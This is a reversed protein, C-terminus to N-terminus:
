APRLTRVGIGLAGGVTGLILGPIFMLFPMSFVEALGGSAQIAAMTALDHRIAFLIAAGVLEVPAALAAAGVAAVVGAGFSRRRFSEVFAALFLIAVGIATSMSARDHLDAAPRLWDLATRALFAAAFLAAWPAAGRLIHRPRNM